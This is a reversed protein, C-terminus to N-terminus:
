SAGSSEAPSRRSGSAHRGGREVPRGAALGGIHRGVRRQSGPSGRIAPEVQRGGQRAEVRLIEVVGGAEAIQAAPVLRDELVAVYTVPCEIADLDVTHNDMSHSLALFREPAVTEAYDRGRAELYGAIGNADRSDAVSATSASEAM